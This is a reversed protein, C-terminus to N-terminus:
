PQRRATPEMDRRTAWKWVTRIIYVNLAAIVVVSVLAVVEWYEKWHDSALRYALYALVGDLAILPYFLAVAVALPMGILRGASSRIKSIGIFGLATSGFPALVGLPLVVLRLVTVGIGISPEHGTEVIRVAFMGILMVVAFPAWLAGIVPLRCLRAPPPADLHEQRAEAAQAYSEPPDMEALVARVDQVTPQGGARENVADYIHAEVSELTEEREEPSVAELHAAVMSLYNEVEAKISERAAM